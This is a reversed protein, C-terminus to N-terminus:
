PQAASPSQQEFMQEVSWVQLAFGFRHEAGPVDHLALVSQQVVLQM